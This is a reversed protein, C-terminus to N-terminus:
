NCGGCCGGGCCGGKEEKSDHDHGCMCDSDCECDGECEGECGCGEEFKMPEGNEDYVKLEDESENKITKHAGSCFPKNTSLGCMCIFVDGDKGSVKAPGTASHVVLRSM